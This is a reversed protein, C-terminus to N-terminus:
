HRIHVTSRRWLNIGEQCEKDWSRWAGEVKFKGAPEFDGIHKYYLLHAGPSEEDHAYSYCTTGDRVACGTKCAVCQACSSTSSGSCSAAVTAKSEPLESELSAERVLCAEKAEADTETLHDPEIFPDDIEVKAMYIVSIKASAIKKHTTDTHYLNCKYEVVYDPTIAERHCEVCDAIVNFACFLAALGYM